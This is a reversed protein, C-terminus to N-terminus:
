PLSLTFYRCPLETKLRLLVYEFKTKMDKVAKQMSELQQQLEKNESQKAQWCCIGDVLIGAAVVTFLM